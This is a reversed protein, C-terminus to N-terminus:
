MNRNQLLLQQRRNNLQPLKTQMAKFDVEEIDDMSEVDDPNRLSLTLSGKVTQSFVLVEAEELTVQLTVTSYGRSSRGRSASAFSQSALQDGTALVLVNQLITLTATEVEGPMTQSPTTFTGLLDVRDGPQVLGSVANEGSVAVSIARLGPQVLNSLGRRGTVPADVHSWWVPEGRRLPLLLKKSLILDLDDVKFINSGVASKFVKKAALDEKVLVTGSPLDTKAVLVEVKTYGRTLADRQARLYNHTLLFAALGMLIAIILVIKQKM